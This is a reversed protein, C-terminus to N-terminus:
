AGDEEEMQAIHRIPNDCVHNVVTVRNEGDNVWATAALLGVFDDCRVEREQRM